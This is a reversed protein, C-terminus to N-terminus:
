TKLSSDLASPEESKKKISTCITYGQNFVTFAEEFDLDDIQEQTLNLVTALFKVIQENQENTNEFAPLIFKMQEDIPLKSFTVPDGIEKQANLVNSFLKQLHTVEVFKLKRHITYEKGSVTFKEAIM